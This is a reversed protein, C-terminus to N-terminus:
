EKEAKGDEFEEVKREITEIKWRSALRQLKEPLRAVLADRYVDGGVAARQLKFIRRM